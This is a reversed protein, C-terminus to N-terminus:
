NPILSTANAMRWLVQVTPRPSTMDNVVLKALLSLGVEDAGPSKSQQQLSALSAALKPAAAEEVNIGYVGLDDLTCYVSVYPLRAPGLGRKASPAMSRFLRETVGLQHRRWLFQRMINPPIHQSINKFASADQPSFPMTVAKIFRISTSPVAFNELVVARRFGWQLVSNFAVTSLYIDLGKRGM